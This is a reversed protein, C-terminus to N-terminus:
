SAEMLLASGLPAIHQKDGVKAGEGAIYKMHILLGSEDCKSRLRRCLLEALNPDEVACIVQYGRSRVAALTEVLHIARFDDVHQIPDDLVLTKLRCWPRSLAVSILFALGAARRQGSSFLFKMNLGNDIRLSLFKRLDGRVAYSVGRWDVHPRLRLYLETFLPRIAALREEVAEASYRKVADAAEKIQNDVLQLRSLIRESQLAEERRGQLLREEELVQRLLNPRSLGRREVELRSLQRVQQEMERRIVGTSLDNAEPMVARVETQLLSMQRNMSELDSALSDYTRQLRTLQDETKSRSVRLSTLREVIQAVSHGFQSIEKGLELLHAEFADAQIPQGCLPCSEERRGIARGLTTLEALNAVFEQGERLSAYQKETEDLENTLTNVSAKLVAIERETEDKQVRKNEAESSTIRSQLLEMRSLLQGLRDIGNRRNAIELDLRKVLESLASHDPLDPLQRIFASDKIENTLQDAEGRLAALREIAEEVRSRSIGYDVRAIELRKALERHATKLKNEVDTTNQAGVAARVFAFREVEPLDVSHSAIFEDRIFSTKCLGEISGEPNNILDCLLARLDPAGTIEVQGPGRYIQIREGADGRVTLRVYRENPPQEGRWWEYDSSTEGKEGSSAEYKLLAGVLAFEIADLVTSKGSGNAGTIITFGSGFDIKLYERSGRFGCIEISDITVM